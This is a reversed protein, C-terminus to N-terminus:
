PDGLQLADVLRCEGDAGDAMEPLRHLHEIFEGEHNTQFFRVDLDLERAWRSSGTSSSPLAHLQRLHEPDRRGLVDLNAGHM